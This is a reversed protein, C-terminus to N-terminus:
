ALRDPPTRGAFFADLNDLCKFGMADRTEVTASGLHPLLFVNPLTRYAPHIKPENEYVDLGAAFLKKSRLAAILADDDVITGRASNVVIAGDPLRAIRQTNLFHHTAASAPCNISLVDCHPLMAEPDAHFVAGQELEPALRQRNCYHITMDFGRARRALARGIRGMGFIGLRKGSVQRGLMEALGLGTWRDDRVMQEGESARRSAGLILLMAIDATADTLVDPTNTVVIGRAKAAALDVHEFGVSFTAIARISAPLAALAEPTMRETPAILLADHGNAAAILEAGSYRRDAPNLTARYDRSLRATVADPLKRTALLAPREAM